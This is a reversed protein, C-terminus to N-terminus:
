RAYRRRTQAIFGSRELGDVLSPDVIEEPTLTKAKPNVEALEAIAAQAAARNPRFDQAQHELFDRYGEELVEDDDSNVYRALVKKTLAPDAWGQFSAEVFTKVLAEALGPDRRIRSETMAVGTHLWELGEKSVDLVLPFGAKLARLHLPSPLATADATGAKLAALREGPEGIQLFLVERPSVRHRQLALRLVSESEAGRTSIALRRGRLDEIGGVKGQLHPGAVIRYSLTNSLGLVMRVDGGAARALIVSTGGIFAAAVEGALLAQMMAGGGRVLVVRAQLGHKEFLRAEEAIKLPLFTFDVSAYGVTVKTPAQAGVPMPPLTLALGLLASAVLM